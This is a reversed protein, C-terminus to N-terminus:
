LNIYTFFKSLNFFLNQWGIDLEYNAKFWTYHTKYIIFVFFKGFKWFLYSPTSPPCQTQCKDLQVFISFIWKSFYKKMNDLGGSTFLVVWIIIRSRKFIEINYCKKAKFDLKLLAPWLRLLSPTSVHSGGALSRGSGGRPSCSCRRKASPTVMRWKLTFSQKM